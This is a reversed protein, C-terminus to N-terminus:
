SKKKKEELTKKFKQRHLPQRGVTFQINKVKRKVLAIKADMKNSGKLGIVKKEFESKQRAFIYSQCTGGKRLDAADVNM